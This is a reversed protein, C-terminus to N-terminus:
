HGNTKLKHEVFDDYLPWVGYFYIDHLASEDSEPLQDEFQDNTISGSALRRVLQALQKRAEKDIDQEM